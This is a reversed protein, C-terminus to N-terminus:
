SVKKIMDSAVELAKNLIDHDEIETIYDYGNSDTDIYAVNLSPDERDFDEVSFLAFERDIGPIQFISIINGLKFENNEIVNFEM